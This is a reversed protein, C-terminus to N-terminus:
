TVPRAIRGRVYDSAKRLGTLQSYDKEAVEIGFAESIATAFHLSDMSDFDFQDRFDREPDVSAGEIDPAIDALLALLRGPIDTPQASTM